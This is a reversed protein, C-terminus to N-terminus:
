HASRNFYFSRRLEHNVHLFRDGYPLFYYGHLLGEGSPGGKIQGQVGRFGTRLHVSPGHDDHSAGFYRRSRSSLGLLLPLRRPQRLRHPSRRLLRLQFLQFSHSNSSAGQLLSPRTRVSLSLM